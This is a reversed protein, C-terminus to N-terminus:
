YVSGSVPSVLMNASTAKTEFLNVVPCIDSVIYAFFNKAICKAKSSNPCMKHPVLLGSMAMVSLWANVQNKWALSSGGDSQFETILRQLKIKHGMNGTNFVAQGVVQRTQFNCRLISQM